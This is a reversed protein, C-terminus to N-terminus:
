PRQQQNRIIVALVAGLAVAGCVAVIPSVSAGLGIGLGIAIGTVGAIAVRTM